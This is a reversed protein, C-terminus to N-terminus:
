SKRQNIGRRRAWMMLSGTAPLPWARGLRRHGPGRPHVLPWHRRRRRCSLRGQARNRGSATWQVVGSKRDSQASEIASPEHTSSASSPRVLGAAHTGLRRAAAARVLATATNIKRAMHSLSADSEAPPPARSGLLMAVDFPSRACARQRRRGLASDHVSLGRTTVERQATEPLKSPSCTHM